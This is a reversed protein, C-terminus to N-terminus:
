KRTAKPKLSMAYRYSLELYPRLAETAELLDDPVAVCEKAPPWLLRIGVVGSKSIMSYMNGNVATRGTRTESPSGLNKVISRMNPIMPEEGEVV